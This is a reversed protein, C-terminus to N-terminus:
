NSIGLKLIKKGYFSDEPKVFQNGNFDVYDYHDDTDNFEESVCAGYAQYTDAEDQILVEVIVDDDFNNLWEKFDKVKMESTRWTSILNVGM